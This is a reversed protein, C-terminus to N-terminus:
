PISLGEFVISLRTDVYKRFFRNFILNCVVKHRFDYVSDRRNTRLITSTSPRVRLMHNQIRNVIRQVMNYLDECLIQDPNVTRSGIAFTWVPWVYRFKGM